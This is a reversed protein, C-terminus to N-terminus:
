KMEQLCRTQMLELGLYGRVPGSIVCPVFGALLLHLAMTSYQVSPFLLDAMVTPTCLVCLLYRQLELHVSVSCQLVSCSIKMLGSSALAPCM